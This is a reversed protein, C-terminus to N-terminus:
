SYQYFQGTGISLLDYKDYEACMFQTRICQLFGLALRISILSESILIM